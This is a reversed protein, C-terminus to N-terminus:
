FRVPIALRTKVPKGNVMAPKWLPMSKVLRVAESDCAEHLSKEVEIDEAEGRENIAFSVMVIGKVQDAVASEPYIMERAFFAQLAKYGGIPAPTTFVSLGKKDATETEAPTVPIASALDPLSEVRNTEQTSIQPSAGLGLLKEEPSVRLAKEERAKEIKSLQAAAPKKEKKTDRAVAAQDIPGAAAAKEPLPTPQVHVTIPDPMREPAPFSPSALFIYAGVIGALSFASLGAKLFKKYLLASQHKQLLREFNKYSDIEKESPHEPSIIVKYKQM